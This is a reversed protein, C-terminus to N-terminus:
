WSVVMIHFSKIYHIIFKTIVLFQTRLISHTLRSYDDPFQAPRSKLHLSPEPVNDTIATNHQPTLSPDITNLTQARSLM